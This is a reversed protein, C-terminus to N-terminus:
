YSLFHDRLCDIRCSLLEDLNRLHDHPLLSDDLVDFSDYFSSPLFFDDFYWFDLSHNFTHFHLNRLYLNLFNDFSNCLRKHLRLRNNHLLRLKDLLLFIDFYGLHFQHLALFDHCHFDNLLAKHFHRLHLIHVDHFLNANHLVLLLHFFDRLRKNLATFNDHLYRLDEVLLLNYLNRLNLYDINDFLLQPRLHLTHRLVHLLWDILAALNWHGHWLYSHFLSNDFNWHWLINFNHLLNGDLDDLLHLFLDCFWNHFKDFFDHFHGM